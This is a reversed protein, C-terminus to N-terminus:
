EDREKATRVGGRGGKAVGEHCVRSEDAARRVVSPCRVPSLPPAMSRPHSCTRALMCSAHSCVKHRVLKVRGFTGAGLTRIIELDERRVSSKRMPVGGVMSTGAAAGAGSASSGDGAAVVKAGTNLITQYERKDLAFVVTTAAATYLADSAVDQLLARDGVYGGQGQVAFEVCARVLPCHRTM